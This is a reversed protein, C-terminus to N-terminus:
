ELISSSNATITLAENGQIRDPAPLRALLVGALLLGVCLAVYRQARIWEADMLAFSLPVATLVALMLALQGCYKLVVRGRVAYSLVSIRQEM